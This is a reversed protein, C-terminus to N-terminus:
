KIVTFHPKPALKKDQEWLHSQLQLFDKKWMIMAFEKQTLFVFIVSYVLKDVAKATLQKCAYSSYCVQFLDSIPWDQHSFQYGYSRQM